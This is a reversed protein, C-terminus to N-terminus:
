RGAASRAASSCRPRSGTARRRPRALWIIHGSQEGGLVGGERRLAELVYRDGVPTTVVRIGHEEMLRHFGLNTMVTVAVLTSARARARPDRPDPRRRAARRARRGRAHPRRGRRVRRRPRLRGRAVKRSLARSTPRAAASTSTRGTRSSASRTCRPASARSPADPRAGLVRRERLRRRHSPRLPRLRLARPRPRPLARGRGDVQEVSAATRRGSRRPAGRDGGGGRGHAQPRRAGFIKVGNYEPPNHSASVVAGLDDALLAVAPTPLVGALVATGGASVIGRALAQELAPGPRARTVDSSSM